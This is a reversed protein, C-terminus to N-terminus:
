EEKAIFKYVTKSVVIWYVVEDTRTDEHFNVSDGSAAKAAIAELTMLEQFIAGNFDEPRPMPDKSESFIEKDYKKRATRQIEIIGRKLKKKWVAFIMIGIVAILVLLVILAANLCYGIWEPYIRESIKIEGARVEDSGPSWFIKDNEMKGALSRCVLEESIPNGGIKGTVNVKATVFFEVSSSPRYDISEDIARIAALLEDTDIPFLTEGEASDFAFEESLIVQKWKDSSVAELEITGSVSVNEAKHSGGLKYLFAADVAELNQIVLPVGQGIPVPAMVKAEKTIRSANTLANARIDAEYGFAYLDWYGERRSAGNLSGEMIFASQSIKGGTSAEFVKDGEKVTAVIDLRYSGNAYFAMQPDYKPDLDKEIALGAEIISTLDLPFSIKIEDSLYKKEGVLAIEKSWTGSMESLVAKVSVAKETAETEAGGDRSLAYVFSMELNEMIPPFLTEGMTKPRDYPRVSFGGRQEYSAVVTERVSKPPFGAFAIGVIYVVAVVAAIAIVARKTFRKL